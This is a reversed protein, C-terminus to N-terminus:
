WFRYLGIYGLAGNMLLAFEIDIYEKNFYIRGTKKDVFGLNELNTEWELIYPFNRAYKKGKLLRYLLYRALPEDHKDFMNNSWKVLINEIETIYKKDTM